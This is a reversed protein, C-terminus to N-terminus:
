STEKRVRKFEVSFWEALTRISAVEGDPGLTFM